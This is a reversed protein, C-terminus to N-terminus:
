IKNDKLIKSIEVIFLSHEVPKYTLFDLTTKNM